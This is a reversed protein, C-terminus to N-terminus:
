LCRKHPRYSQPNISAVHDLRSVPSGWVKVAYNAAKPSISVGTVGDGLDGTYLRAVLDTFLETARGDSTVMTTWAGGSRNAPHEWYPGADGRMVCMLGGNLPPLNNFFRWFTEHSDITWLKTYSSPTWQKVLNGHYWITIPTAMKILKSSHGM